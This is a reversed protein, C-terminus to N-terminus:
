KDFITKVSSAVALLITFGILIGAVWVGAHSFQFEGLTIGKDMMKQSMTDGAMAKGIFTLILLAVFGGLTWILAKPKLAIGILSLVIAAIVAIGGCIYSVWLGFSAPGQQLVKADNPVSYTRFAFILIAILILIYFVYTFVKKSNM